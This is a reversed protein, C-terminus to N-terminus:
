LLARDIVKILQPLAQNVTPWVYVPRDHISSWVISWHRNLSDAYAQTLNLTESFVNYTM